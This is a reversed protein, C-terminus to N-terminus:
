NPTHPPSMAFINFIKFMNERMIYNMNGFLICYLLSLFYFGGM